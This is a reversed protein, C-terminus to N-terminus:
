PMISMCFSCMHLTNAKILTSMHICVMMVTLMVHDDGGFTDKHGKIFEEERGELEEEM